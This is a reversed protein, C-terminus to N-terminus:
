IPIRNERMAKKMGDFFRNYPSREYPFCFVYNTQRRQIMALQMMPTATRSDLKIHVFYNPFFLRQFHIDEPRCREPQLIVNPYKQKLATGLMIAYEAPEPAQNNWLAERIPEEFPGLNVKKCLSIKSISARWLVSLLFLVFLDYNINELPIALHTGDRSSVIADVEGRPVSLVEFGYTDWETFKPECEECLISDDTPGAQYYPTKVPAGPKAEMGVSYKGDGRVIKFFSRPIVHAKVFRVGERKCFRCASPSM